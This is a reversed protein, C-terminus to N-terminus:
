AYQTTHKNQNDEVRINHITTDLQTITKITRKYKRRRKEQTGFTAVKEPYDM